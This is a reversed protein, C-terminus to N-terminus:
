FNSYGMLSSVLLLFVGFIRKLVATPLVYALKAGYPAAVVSTLGIMFIAPWYLYSVTSGSTSREWGLAFFALAGIVAILFGTAASTSIANRIPMSFYTLIPVTIIGGGIGLISSISGILVGISSLIMKSPTITSTPLDAPNSNFLFHFGILATFGAFVLALERSPLYDAILAGFIAGLVIGPSLVWFFHWVIGKQRYHAWASSASTFVMAALSTGIAMQMAYTQPLDMYYFTLLLSPVAVLGGGIGLLGGLLGAFAGIAAFIVLDFYGM